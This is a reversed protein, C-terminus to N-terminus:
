IAGPKKCKRCGGPGEWGGHTGGGWGVGEGEGNGKGVVSDIAGACCVGDAAQSAYLGCTRSTDCYPGIVTATCKCKGAECTGRYHCTEGECFDCKRTNCRIVAAPAPAPCRM